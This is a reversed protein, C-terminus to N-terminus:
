SWTPRRRARCACSKPGCKAPRSSTPSRGRIHGPLCVAQTVAAAEQGEAALQKLRRSVNEASAGRLAFLDAIRVQAMEDRSIFHSAGFEALAELAASLNRTFVFKSYERGEIARRVFREFGAVDVGLGLEALVRSVRARTDEDWVPRDHPGQEHPFGTKGRM